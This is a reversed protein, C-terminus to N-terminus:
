VSRLTAKKSKKEKLAAIEKNKTILLEHNEAIEAHMKKNSEQLASINKILSNNKERMKIVIEDGAYRGILKSSEYAKLLQGSAIEDKYSEIVKGRRRCETLLESRIMRDLDKSGTTKKVPTSAISLRALRTNESSILADLEPYDRSNIYAPNRGFQGAVRSKSIKRQSITLKDGAELALEIREAERCVENYIDSIVDSYEAIWSPRQKEKRKLEFM